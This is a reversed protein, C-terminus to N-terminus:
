TAGPFALTFPPRRLLFPPSFNALPVWRTCACASGRGAFDALCGSALRARTPFASDPLTPLRASFGHLRAVFTILKWSSKRDYYSSRDLTDSIAPCAAHRPRLARCLRLLSGQFGPLGSRRGSILRVLSVGASCRGPGPLLSRISGPLGRFRLCSFFYLCDPYIRTFAVFCPHIACPTKARKYYRQLRAFGAWPLWGLSPTRRSSHATTPSM